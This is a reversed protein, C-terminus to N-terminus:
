INVHINSTRRSNQQILYVNENYELKEYDRLLFNVLYWDMLLKKFGGKELCWTLTIVISTLTRPRMASKDGKYLCKLISFNGM